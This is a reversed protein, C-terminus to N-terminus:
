ITQRARLAGCFTDFTGHYEQVRNRRRKVAWRGSRVRIVWRVPNDTCSRNESSETPTVARLNERRCNMPNRDKHDGIRRDGVDLGLLWRHLLQMRGEAWIQAYGHSGVSVRGLHDYDDDVEVM